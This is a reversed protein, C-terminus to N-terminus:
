LVTGVYCRTFFRCLCAARFTQSDSNCPTILWLVASKMTVATLVEFGVFIGVLSFVIRFVSTKKLEELSHWSQVYMLKDLGSEVSEAM